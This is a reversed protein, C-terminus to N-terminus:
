GMSPTLDKSKVEEIDFTFLLSKVGKGNYEFGPEGLHTHIDVFGPSVICGEADIVEGGFEKKKGKAKDISAIKGDRVIITREGFVGGIPDIVNGNIIILM